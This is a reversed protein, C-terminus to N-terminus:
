RSNQKGSRSHRNGYDDYSSHTYNLSLSLSEGELYIIFDNLYHREKKSPTLRTFGPSQTASGGVLQRGAQRHNGAPPYVNSTLVECFKAQTSIPIFNGSNAPLDDGPLGRICVPLNRGLPYFIPFPDRSRFNRGLPYFIPLLDRFRFNRGLPYFNSSLNRSSFM